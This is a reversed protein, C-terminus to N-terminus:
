VGLSLSKLAVPNAAQVLLADAKMGEGAGSLWRGAAEMCGRGEKFNLLEDHLYRPFRDIAALKSHATPLIGKYHVIVKTWGVSNLRDCMVAEPLILAERDEQGQGQGQEAASASPSARPPVHLIAVVGEEGAHKARLLSCKADDLFAATGLPVVLDNYLNAYVRRERFDSLASLYADDTALSYMLCSRLDTDDHMLLQRGTKRLAAAMFGVVPGRVADPLKTGLLQDEIYTHNRVGLHPCAITMFYFPQLGLWDLDKLMKSAVRILVGGLSNGVLSLYLVSPHRQRFEAIERVLAEGCELVGKFSETWENESSCLVPSGAEVLKTKLVKLDTSFASLGHVLVYAHCSAPPFTTTPSSSSESGGAATLLSSLGIELAEEHILQPQMDENYLTVLRRGRVVPLAENVSVVPGSDYTGM